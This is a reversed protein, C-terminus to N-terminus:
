KMRALLGTKWWLQHVAVAAVHAAILALLLNMLLEHAEAAPGILGFWAALGSLPMALLLAYIARHAWKSAVRFVEPEGAPAEPAGHARRLWLRALACALVLLGIVLHAVPVLGWARAGTEMTTHFPRGMSDFILWQLAILGVVAWHLLKQAPTYAAPTHAPSAPAVTM